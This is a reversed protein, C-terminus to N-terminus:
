KKTQVLNTKATELSGQFGSRFANQAMDQLKRELESVVEKADADGAHVTIVPSFQMVNSTNATHNSIANQLMPSPATLQAMGAKVEPTIDGSMFRMNSHKEVDAAANRDQEKDAVHAKWKEGLGLKDLLGGIMSRLKDVIIQIANPFSELIGELGDLGDAFTSFFSKWSETFTDIAVSAMFTVVDELLTLVPEFQDALAELVNSLSEIFRLLDPSPEFTDLKDQITSLWEVFQASMDYFRAELKLSASELSSFGPVLKNLSEELAEKSQFLEISAKKLRGDDFEATKINREQKLNAIRAASSEASASIIDLRGELNSKDDMMKGLVVFFKNLMEGSINGEKMDDAFAAKAKQGTLGSNTVKAWAEVGLKDAGAIREAFQGKWEEAMLQGKSFAQGIARLAGSMDDENTGTGRAFKMIGQILGVSEEKQLGADTLNIASMVYPKAIKERLLGLDNAFTTLEKEVAQATSTDGKTLVRLQAREVAREDGQKVDIHALANLKSAALAAATAVAGIAIAAPHLGASFMGLGPISAGVGVGAGGALVHSMSAGFGRGSGGSRFPTQRRPADGKAAPQVGRPLPDIRRMEKSLKEELRLATLRARDSAAQTRARTAELRSNTSALRIREQQLRLAQQEQRLGFTKQANQLKASDLAAKNALATAKAQQQATKAQAAELRQRLTALKLAQQETQVAARPPSTVMKAPAVPALKSLKLQETFQAKSLKQQSAFAQKSLKAQQAQLAALQKAHKIDTPATSPRRQADGKVPTLKSLKLNDAFQQKSLKQQAALQKQINATGKPSIGLKRQLTAAQRQMAQMKRSIGDLLKEFKLLGSHDVDFRLKGVLTAITKEGGSM